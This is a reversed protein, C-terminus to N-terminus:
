VFVWGKSGDSMLGSNDSFHGYAMDNPFDATGDPAFFAFRIEGRSLSRLRVDIHGGKDEVRTIVMRMTRPAGDLGAIQRTSVYVQDGQGESYDKPDISAKLRIPPDRLLNVRRTVVERGANSNAAKFFRSYLADQRIDGWQNNGEAGADAALDNTLYNSDERKNATPYILDYHLVIETVREDDLDDRQPPNDKFTGADTWTPIAMLPPGLVKMDYYQRQADWYSVANGSILLESLLDSTKTPSAIITTIRYSTGFWTTELDALGTLNLLSDDLGGENCLKQVATTFPEDTLSWCLQATDGSKHDERPSGDQERYTGDPWSLTDGNIATVQIVEKGIAVYCPLGYKSYQAGKGSDLTVELGSVEAYSTNDPTVAWATTMTATRTAGVYSQVVGRQGAGTNEAIYVEMGNYAGDVASATNALQISNSTGGQATGQHEYAKLDAQLKGDTPAPTKKSDLLSAPDKYHIQVEGPRQMSISEMIYLETLFTSWDWPDTAYGRRLRLPRGYFYENRAICRPWYSGDAPVDRFELYPDEGVDSDTEDILTIHGAGRRSVGKKVDIEPVAGSPEGVIYPRMAEGPPIPAGRSCFRRTKPAGKVWTPGNVLTGDNGNGSYDTVTTGTGENMALGLAHGGLSYPHGDRYVRRADEATPAFNVLAAYYIDGNFVNAIAPSTSSAGVFYVAGFDVTGAGINQSGALVGNVYILRNAGDYIGMVTVDDGPSIYTALEPWYTSDVGPVRMSFNGAKELTLVAGGATTFLVRYDNTGDTYINFQSAKFRMVVAFPGSVAPASGTIVATGNDPFRVASNNFNGKDQCSPYTHYCPAGTTNATIAAGATKTYPRLAGDNIQVGSMYAYDTGTGAYYVSNGFIGRASCASSTTGVFDFTWWIRYVGDGKYKYGAVNNATSSIATGGFAPEALTDLDFINTYAYGAPTSFMLIFRHYTGAKVHMSITYKKGSELTYFTGKFIGHNTTTTDDTFQFLHVGGGYGADAIATGILSWWTSFDESYVIKNGATAQCPSDATGFRNGCYDLDMEAVIVPIRELATRAADRQTTSPLSM